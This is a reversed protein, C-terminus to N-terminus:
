KEKSYEEKLIEMIRNSSEVSEKSGYLYQFVHFMGKYDKFYVNVGNKKMNKYIMYSDDFLMEYSGVEIITTPFDYYDGFIPSVYPNKLEDSNAYPNNILSNPFRKSSSYKNTGMVVDRYRNYYRSEVNNTLDTWPSLVVIARPMKRNEDRLKLSFALTLNGGSSDGMITINKELYGMKLIYNFANEIENLQAPYKKKEATTYKIFIIDFDNDKDHNLIYQYLVKNSYNLEHLFAGGNIVIALKRKEIKKNNNRLNEYISIYFDNTKVIKEKDYPYKVNNLISSNLYVTQTDFIEDKLSSSRLFNSALVNVAKAVFSIDKPNDYTIITCSSLLIFLIYKLYKKNKM